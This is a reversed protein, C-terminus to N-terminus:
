FLQSLHQHPSDGSFILTRLYQKKGLALARSFFYISSESAPLEAAALAQM